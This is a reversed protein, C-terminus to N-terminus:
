IDEIIPRNNSPMLPRNNMPFISKFKEIQDFSINVSDKMLFWYVGESCPPTTLSGILFYYKRDKPLLEM